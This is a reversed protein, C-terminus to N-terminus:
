FKRALNGNAVISASTAMCELILMRLMLAVLRAFNNVSVFMTLQKQKLINFYHLESDMVVNINHHSM